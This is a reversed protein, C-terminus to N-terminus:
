ACLLLLHGTMHIYKNYKYCKKTTEHVFGWFFIGFSFYWTTKDVYFSSHLQYISVLWGLSPKSLMEEFTKNCGRCSFQQRPNVSLSMQLWFPDGVPGQRGRSVWHPPCDRCHCSGQSWLGWSGDCTRSSCSLSEVMKWDPRHHFRSSTLLDIALWLHLFSM